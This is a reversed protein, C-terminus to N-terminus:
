RGPAARDSRPRARAVAPDPSRTRDADTPDPTHTPRNPPPVEAATANATCRTAPPPPGPLGTAVPPPWPGATETPSATTTAVCCPWTSSTPPGRREWWIVHHADCWSAPCDGGPFISGGDRTALARRQNRNVLRIKRGMDLPVGLLDIVLVTIIPDCLLIAAREPHVVEGDPTQAPGCHSWLEAPTVCGDGGSVMEVVTETDSAANPDPPEAHIVPHCGRGPRHHDRPRRDLRPLGTRGPGHGVAHSSGADASGLQPRGPAQAASVDPRRASRVLTVSLSPTSGSWNPRWGRSRRTSPPSSCGSAAETRPLTM